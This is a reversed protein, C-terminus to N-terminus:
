GHSLRCVVKSWDDPFEYRISQLLSFLTTGIVGGRQGEFYDRHYERVWDCVADVTFPIHFPNGEPNLPPGIETSPKNVRIEGFLFPFQTNMTRGLGFFTVENFSPRYRGTCEEQAERIATLFPDYTGTKDLDECQGGGSVSPQFEGPNWAVRKNRTSLYIRNDSTVVTLNTAIPNSLESSLFDELDRGYKLAISTGCPLVYDPSQNTLRTHFYETWGLKLWLPKNTLGGTNSVGGWTANVLRIQPNNVFIKGTARCHAQIEAIRKDADVQIDNPLQYKLDDSPGDCVIDEHRFRTIGDGGVLILVQITVDGVCYYPHRHRPRNFEEEIIKTVTTEPQRFYDFKQFKSINPHLEGWNPTDAILVPLVNGRLRESSMAMSVERRVWESKIAAPSVLVVFKHCADIAKSIDEAFYGGKLSRESYFFDIYHLRFLEAFKEAITKDASCFSIFVKM